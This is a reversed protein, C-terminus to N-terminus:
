LCQNKLVYFKEREGLMRYIDNGDKDILQQIIKDDDVIVRVNNNEDTTWERLQCDDPNNIHIRNKNLKQNIRKLLIFRKGPKLALIISPIFLAIIGFGIIVRNSCANQNVVNNNYLSEGIITAGVGYMIAMDIMDCENKLQQYQELMDYVTQKKKRM